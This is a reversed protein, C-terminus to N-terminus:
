SRTAASVAASRACRHPTRSSPYRSALTRPDTRLRSSHISNASVPSRSPSARPPLMAVPVGPPAVGREDLDHASVVRV